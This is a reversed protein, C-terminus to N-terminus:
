FKQGTVNFFYSMFILMYKIFILNVKACIAVKLVTM